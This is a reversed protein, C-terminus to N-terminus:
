YAEIGSFDKYFFCFFNAPAGYIYDLKELQDGSDYM